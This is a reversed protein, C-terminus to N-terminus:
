KVGETIFSRIEKLTMGELGMRAADRGSAWYDTGHMISGLLIISDMAPTPVDGLRGLHAIPVMSMPIDESVYRHAVMRPAKIGDYGRNNHMAEFLTKGAADYAIYLWERATMARFGLSEAVAVREQDLKDLILAVSPTVGETYYEFDGNTSEIRAANLVTLAPHFISGINDLSTKMVNDGPIFQPLAVRLQRVVDPTKYAPIAAVPVSNKIRFIKTQGPNMSRSTYLLTQAECVVVDARCGANRITNLVELAGGTRGPNLLVIQGDRLFPAMREATERHGTAPLVVMLIDRDLIAEGIDSTILSLQAFGQPLNMQDSLIDVGGRHQIIRIREPSRNYLSVDFGLLSLHGAMATGGHGGGIVAFRLEGKEKVPDM